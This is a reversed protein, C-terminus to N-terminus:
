ALAHLLRRLSELRATGGPGLRGEEVAAAIACDPADELHTCGRPCGEEPDEAIAALDEFARLVHEPDVHGLGFSRIGPTDVIWGDGVALAVSSSSTHRGRGTVANVDGTARAADPVLANVLTSKGVGSHGVAVVFHGEVLARLEEVPPDAKASRVVRLGLGDFLRIFATPDAVDTKTVVLIPEIGVDVAAVLYRDVLRPRPEPDAAAVVILMRDANAVIIREDREGTPSDDASRRLLTSRPEVRVIRALTGGGGSVDGVLAVRDGVVVAGRGLERAATATVQREGSQVRYRGRDVAVVLGPVADEHTPRQKSRARSGRPNPRIRVDEESWEEYEDFADSARTGGASGDIM